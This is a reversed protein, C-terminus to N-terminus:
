QKIMKGVFVGSDQSEVMIVYTGAALRSIALTVSSPSQRIVEVISSVEKGNPDYIRMSNEAFELDGLAQIEVQTSAPNPYIKLEESVLIGPNFIGSITMTVPALRTTCGAENTLEVSFEGMQNVTLTGQSDGTLKEGNRFWQYTYNGEPAKLINGDVVIEGSPKALSEVVFKETEFLCGGAYRVIAHYSGGEKIELTKGTAESVETGNRRWRVVEFDAESVLTLVQSEGVCIAAPGNVTVPRTNVAKVIASALRVTNLRSADTAIIEIFVNKGVDECTIKQKNITLSEIGCNDSLSKIFDEPNLVLEGVSLDLKVEFNKTELQPFIPDQVRVEIKEERSNGKDDTILVTIEQYGLDECSFSSKSLVVTYELSIPWKTFVQEPKLTAKGDKDLLLEVKDKTVPTETAEEFRVDISNSFVSCGNVPKVKARYVGAVSVSLEKTTNASLQEDGKYWAEVTYDFESGLTLKVTSGKVGKTPGSISIKKSETTEITLYAVSETANGSKDKVLLNVKIPTKTTLDGCGLTKPTIVVELEDACNDSLNQIFFDAKLEFQKSTVLDIVATYNKVQVKPAIKDLVTVKVVGTWKVEGAESVKVEVEKIGLDTCSYALERSFQYTYDASYGSTFYSSAVTSVVGNEDLNLTLADKFVPTAATKRLPIKLNVVDKYVRREVKQLNYNQDVVPFSYVPTFNVLAYEQDGEVSRELNVELHGYHKGGDVLVPNAGSTNWEEVSSQDASWKRYQNYDLTNFPNGFWDRKEGRLGDGAVGVDYYMVGKGDSDEDVFSREFLEDHGSFVAVVGYEELMPNIVRMPTGVQGISLEHNLPVGHEGSSFAIHHYQVFILQGNESANKLNEELWIYQDSGPGYSSLDNGGAANYQAQTYNEQTDTGPLTYQKGTLKPQGDFDAATQDPTGNSSDLTLITVPGYDVRYYSQRHKQLPDETPTEFYAHFRKRGLVPVFDGKENTSYGGNIGGYAEWNGLAPIIAYSSLGAGKEGANQRFFEDWGPQYGAGQVLDGPMIIFDPDRSNIIKLNESYGKEETLFYNPLELGQEITTGFKEKWLDPITTIPRVLPSGPYWARNTVRGRPDTESDALAIFRIKEWSSKSSPMTFDGSYDVGGLTVVYNVKTDAPLDVPYRYRFVQDSGLWSGQELGELVQNKEPTTYYIEPVSEAAIEGEYIVSGSANTLKISSATQSSSFWTLQIKGEGYVQLYPYIRFPNVGSIKLSAFVIFILLGVVFLIHKKM